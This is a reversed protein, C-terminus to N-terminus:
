PNAKGASTNKWQIIKKQRHENLYNLIDRTRYYIKKEIHTYPLKGTDRSNQLIHKSINLQICVDQNDLYRKIREEDCLTHLEEIKKALQRFRATVTEIITEKVILANM